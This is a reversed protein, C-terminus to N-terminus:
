EQPDEGVLPAVTEAAGKQGDLWRTLIVQAAKRDVVQKRKQRSLDAELLVATSEVTSYGEDVTEVKFGAALLADIFVQVRTARHGVTGDSEYPMGVVLHKTEYRAAWTKVQAVDGGTGRRDLTTLPHAMVGLDDTVALGITRSGVDLGLVRMSAFKAM